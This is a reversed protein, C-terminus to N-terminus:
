GSINVIVFAGLFITGIVFTSFSIVLIRTTTETTDKVEKVGFSQNNVACAYNSGAKPEVTRTTFRLSTGVVSGSHAKQEKNIGISLLKPSQYRV